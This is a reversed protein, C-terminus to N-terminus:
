PMLNMLWLQVGVHIKLQLLFVLQSLTLFPSFLLSFKRPNGLVQVFVFSWLINRLFQVLFLYLLPSLSLCRLPLVLLLLLHHLSFLLTLRPLFLLPLCLFLFFIQMKMYLLSAGKAPYEWMSDGVLINGTIDLLPHPAQRTLHLTQRTTERDINLTMIKGGM